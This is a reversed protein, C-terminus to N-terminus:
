TLQTGNSQFWHTGNAFCLWGNFFCVSGYARNSPLSAQPEIFLPARTANGKFHGGYGTSTSADGLISNGGSTSRAWLANGGGTNQSFITYLTTPSNFYNVSTSARGQFDVTGDSSDLIMRPSGESAYFGRIQMAFTGGNIQWRSGSSATQINFATLNGAVLKGTTISNTIINGGDIFTVGSPASVNTFTVLGDLNQWNFVATLTVTQSGGFTAESVNYRVAWFKSGDQTSPNTVPDPATFTTSWGATLSSFDGTTFNFGSASPASPASASAISYYIFGSASRPGTGGTTGTPGTPGLSGTAGTPGTPGVPAVPTWSFSASTPSRTSKALDNGVLYSFYYTATPSAGTPLVQNAFVYTSGPTVPQGDITSASSLLQWDSATPIAVTTYYLESYTVRGTAPITISVNFNPIASSPNSASVTPASLPSFYSVSPIDSNPVPVYQTIDFDDYVAASYESM